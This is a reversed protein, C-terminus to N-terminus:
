VNKGRQLIEAVLQQQPHQILRQYASVMIAPVMLAYLETQKLLAYVFRILGRAIRVSTQRIRAPVKRTTM